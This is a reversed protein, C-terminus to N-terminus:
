PTRTRLRENGAAAPRFLPKITTYTTSLSNTQQPMPITYAASYWFRRLNHEVMAKQKYVAAKLPEPEGEKYVQGTKCGPQGASYEDTEPHGVLQAYVPEM